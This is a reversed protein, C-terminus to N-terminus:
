DLRAMDMGPPMIALRNAYGLYVTKAAELLATGSKADAAAREEENALVPAAPRLAWTGFSIGAAFFGVLFWQLKM